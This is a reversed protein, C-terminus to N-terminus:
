ITVLYVNGEHKPTGTYQVIAKLDTLESKVKLIKELQKEDEVVLINCRSHNAMYQCMEPSNTAYIGVAIGNAFVAAMDAMFWEPSNFGIIGVSKRPELGLQIFAKAVIRVEPFPCFFIILELIFYYNKFNKLKFNLTRGFRFYRFKPITQDPIPLIWFYWVSVELSPM